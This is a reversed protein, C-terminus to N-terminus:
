GSGNSGGKFGIMVGWWRCVVCVLCRCCFLMMRSGEDRHGDHCGCRGCVVLKVVLIFEGVISVILLCSMSVIWKLSCLKVGIFRCVAALIAFVSDDALKEWFYFCCERM